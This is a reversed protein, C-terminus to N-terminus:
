QAPIYFSIDIYDPTPITDTGLATIQCRVTCGDGQTFSEFYISTAFSTTSTGSSSINDNVAYIEGSGSSFRLYPVGPNSFSTAILTFKVTISQSTSLGAVTFVEWADDFTTSFMYVGHDYNQFELLSTCPATYYTPDYSSEIANDIADQLSNITLAGDANEMNTKIDLFSMGAGIPVAQAYINFSIFLSFLLSIIKKM